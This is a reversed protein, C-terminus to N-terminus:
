RKEASPSKAAPADTGLAWATLWRERGPQLGFRKRLQREMDALHAAGYFIAIRQKGDRLQQSLVDMARENRVTIITSGDPGDFLTAAALSDDFQEAMVRKLQRARDRSLLATLLQIDSSGALDKSQLAVGQGLARFFMQMLSEGRDSMSRAFENPSLDAHVFNRRSYDIWDLQYELELMAKFGLQMASVPNGARGDPQPIKRDAPAVLEYLVADYSRFVENLRQYYARDGVHVAGVLDVTPGEGASKRYRVISTQLARPQDNDDRLLRIFKKTVKAPAADSAFVATACAAQLGLSFGILLTLHRKM